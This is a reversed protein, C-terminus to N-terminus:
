KSESSQNSCVYVIENHHHKTVCLTLTNLAAEGKFEHQISNLTHILETHTQSTHSSITMISMVQRTGVTLIVGIMVMALVTDLLVVM